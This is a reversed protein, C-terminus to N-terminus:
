YGIKNEQNQEIYLNFREIVNDKNKDFIDTLINKVIDKTQENKDKKYDDYKQDIIKKHRELDPLNYKNKNVEDYFELLHNYLKNMTTDIIDNTKMNIFKDNDNKYVLGLNNSKDILINQNNKNQLIEELTRSYKNDQMLLYIKEKDNLESTDFKNDFPVIVINNNNNYFNITINGNINNQINTTINNQIEENKVTEHNIVNENKNNKLIDFNINKCYKDIHRKLDCTRKFELDCFICKKQKKDKIYDFVEEINSFKSIDYEKVAIVPLLSLKNAEDEDYKYSEINRGCKNKRGLHRVIDNKYNFTMFCRKCEYVM